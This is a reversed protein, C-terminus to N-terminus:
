HCDNTTHTTSRSLYPTRAGLYEDDQCPTAPCAGTPQYHDHITEILDRGYDTTETTQTGKSGDPCTISATTEYTGLVYEPGSETTITQEALTCCEGPCAAGQYTTRSGVEFEESSVEFLPFCILGAPSIRERM